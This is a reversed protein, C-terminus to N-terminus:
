LIREIRGGYCHVEGNPSIGVNDDRHRRLASKVAKEAGNRYAEFEAELRAYRAKADREIDNLRDSAPPSYFAMGYNEHGIRVSDALVEVQDETLEIGAEEAANSICENWYDAQSYSM